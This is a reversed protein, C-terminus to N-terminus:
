HFKAPKTPNKEITLSVVCSVVEPALPPEFSNRNIENAQKYILAEPFGKDIWERVQNYLVFKRLGKSFKVPTFKLYKSYRKVLSKFVEDYYKEKESM